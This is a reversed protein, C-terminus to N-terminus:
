TGPVFPSELAGVRGPDTISGGELDSGFRAADVWRFGFLGAELSVDPSTEGFPSLDGGGAGLEMFPFASFGLRYPSRGVHHSSTSDGVSASILTREFVKPM